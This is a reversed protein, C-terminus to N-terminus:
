IEDGEDLFAFPDSEPFDGVTVNEFRSFVGYNTRCEFYVEGSKGKGDNLGQPEDLRVGVWTGSLADVKGVYAVQGRRGGPNVECRANLPFLERINTPTTPRDAPKTGTTWTKQAVDKKIQQRVTNERKDYEEETMQYKEIQSVDELGGNRSLSYMDTDKIHIEMDNEAGYDRLTKNQDYMFITDSGRRLYLEACSISTGGHRYLKEKVELLTSDRFFNIAHWRQVLNSHTVDLRVCGEAQADYKTADGATIYEMMASKVEGVTQGEM